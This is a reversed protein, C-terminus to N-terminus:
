RRMRWTSSPLSRWEATSKPAKAAEYYEEGHHQMHAQVCHLFYASFRAPRKGHQRIATIVTMLIARYQPNSLRAGRDNLWKAPYTIAQELM